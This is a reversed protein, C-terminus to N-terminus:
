RGRIVKRTETGGATELRCLYVGPALRNADLRHSYTGPSMDRDLLRTVLRGASTYLSLRVPGARQIRFRVETQRDFPNPWNQDLLGAASLPQGPQADSPNATSRRWVGHRDTGLYLYVTESALAEGAEGPILDENYPVWSSGHDTSKYVQLGSPYTGAYLANPTPLISFVGVGFAPTADEWGIGNNTSRIMGNLLDGVYVFSGEAAISIPDSGGAQFVLTWSQGSSTSRYIGSSTFIGTNVIAYSFVGSTAFGWISGDPVNTPNWQLGNDTSYFIGSDGTGALLNAGAVGVSLLQPPPVPLGTNAQNWQLGGDTSRYLGGASTGAIHVGPRAIVSFVIEDELRGGPDQDSRTWTTGHDTTRHIGDGGTAALLSAGDFYLRRIEGGPPLGNTSSSWAGGADDSVLLSKRQSGALVRGSSFLLADITVIDIGDNSPGWSAGLNTSKWVGEAPAGATGAYVTTGNVTLSAVRQLLQFPIEVPDWTNGGDGSRIVRNWNGAYIFSGTSAFSFINYFDLSAIQNWNAGQDTSRYTFNSGAAFISSGNAIMAAISEFGMGMNSLFWSQGQNTSKYVGNGVSGAFVNGNMALLTVILQGELGSGSPTWSSGDNSSRFVGGHGADDIPISAYLFPPEGAIATVSGGELGANAATWSSGNDSSRYVGDAATGAFLTTGQRFLVNVGSASPGATQEWGGITARAGAGLPALCLLATLLAATGPSRRGHTTLRPPMAGQEAYILTRM